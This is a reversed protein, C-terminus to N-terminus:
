GWAQRAEEAGLHADGGPEQHAAAAGAVPQRPLEDEHPTILTLKHQLHAHAGGPGLAPGPSPALSPGGTQSLVDASLGQHLM